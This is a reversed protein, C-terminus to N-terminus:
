SIYDGDIFSTKKEIQNKEGIEDEEDIEKEENKRESYDNEVNNIDGSCLQKQGTAQMFENNAFIENIKEMIERQTLMDGTAAVQLVGMRDSRARMIYDYLEKGDMNGKLYENVISGLNGFNQWMLEMDSIQKMKLKKESDAIREAQENRAIKEDTEKKAVYIEAKTNKNSDRMKAAAEEPIARIELRRFRVGRYQKLGKEIESELVNQLEIDEWADWKRDQQRVANRVTHSVDGEEMKGQFFYTRANELNYSMKVMVDFHFERNKMIVRYNQSFQKEELSLTIKQNYHRHRIKASFYKDGYNILMSNQKGEGTQCLLFCEGEQPNPVREAWGLKFLEESVIFESM